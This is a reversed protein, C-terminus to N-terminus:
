FYELYQKLSPIVSSSPYKRLYISNIEKLINGVEISWFADIDKLFMKGIREITLDFLYDYKNESLLLVDRIGMLNSLIYQGNGVYNQHGKRYCHLIKPVVCFQQCIDMAKLLFVPDEYRRYVPFKIDNKRLYEASYIYSQFFFDNQYNKFHVIKGKDPINGVEKMFDTQIIEGRKLEVRYSGCIPVVHQICAVMMVELADKEYYM